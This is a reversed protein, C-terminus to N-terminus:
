RYRTRYGPEGYHVRKRPPSEPLYNTSEDSDYELPLEQDGRLQAELIAKERLMKRLKRKVEQIESGVTDLDTSLATVLEQTTDMLLSEEGPPLVPIQASIAGKREDLVSIVVAVLWEEEQQANRFLSAEYRPRLPFGIRQMSRWLLAPFPGEAFDLYHLEKVYHPELPPVDAAAAPEQDDDPDDDGGDPAALDDGGDEANGGGVVGPDAGDGGAADEDDGDETTTTTTTNMTAM